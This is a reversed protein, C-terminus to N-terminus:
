RQLAAAAADRDAATRKGTRIYSVVESFSNGHIPQSDLFARVDPHVAPQAHVDTVALFLVFSALM